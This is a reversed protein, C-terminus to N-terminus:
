ESRVCDSFINFFDYQWTYFFCNKGILFGCIVDKSLRKLSYIGDLGKFPRPIKEHKSNFYAKFRQYTTYVFAKTGIIGSDSFYRTRYRFRRVRNLEFDNRREKELVMSDVVGAIMKDPRDLAGAEYVYRRYRRLREQADLV